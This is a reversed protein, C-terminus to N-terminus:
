VWRIPTRGVARRVARIAAGRRGGPPRGSPCGTPCGTLVVVVRRVGVEHGHRLAAAEAEIHDRRGVARCARAGRGALLVLDQPVALPPANAVAVAAAAALAALVTLAPRVDVSGTLAGVFLMREVNWNEGRM